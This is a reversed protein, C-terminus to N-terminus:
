RCDLPVAAGIQRPRNQLTAPGAALCGTMMPVATVFRAAAGAPLDGRRGEPLRLVAYPRGDVEVLSLMLPSGLLEVPLATAPSRGGNDIAEAAATAAGPASVARPPLAALAEIPGLPQSVGGGAGAWPGSPEGDIGTFGVGRAGSGASCACLAVFLSGAMLTFRIM